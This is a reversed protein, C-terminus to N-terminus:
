PYLLGASSQPLCLSPEFSPPLSQHPPSTLGNCFILGAKPREAPCNQPAAPFSFPFKGRSVPTNRIPAERRATKGLRRLGNLQFHAGGGGLPQKEPLPHHTALLRRPHSPGPASPLGAAGQSLLALSALRTQAPEKSLLLGLASLGEGPCSPSTEVGRRQGSCGSRPCSGRLSANPRSPLAGAEVQQASFRVRASPQRKCSHMTAAASAAGTPGRESGTARSAPRTSVCPKQKDRQRELGRSLGAGLLM